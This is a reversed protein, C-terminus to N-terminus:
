QKKVATRDAPAGDVPVTFIGFHRGGGVDMSVLVRMESQAATRRTVILSRRYVGTADTKPQVFPASSSDITVSDSPLFEVRLNEGAVRPTFALQLTTPQDPVATSSLQYRVEVPVGAKSASRAVSMQDLSPEGAAASAVTSHEASADRSHPQTGGCAALGVYPLVAVIALLTRKM